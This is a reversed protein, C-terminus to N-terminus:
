LIYVYIKKMKPKIADLFVDPKFDCCKLNSLDNLYERKGKAYFGGGQAEFKYPPDTVVLDISNDPLNKIIDFCDANYVDAM